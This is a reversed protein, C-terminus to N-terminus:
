NSKVCICRRYLGFLLTRITSTIHSEASLIRTQINAMKIMETVMEESDAEIKGHIMQEDQEMQFEFKM